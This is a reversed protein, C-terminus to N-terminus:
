LPDANRLRQMLAIVVNIANRAFVTDCKLVYRSQTRIVLRYYREPMNTILRQGNCLTPEGLNFYLKIRRLTLLSIQLPKLCRKGTLVIM